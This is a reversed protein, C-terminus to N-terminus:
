ISWNTVSFYICFVSTKEGSSLQAREKSHDHEETSPLSLKAGPQLDNKSTCDTGRQGERASSICKWIEKSNPLINEGFFLYWCFQYLKQEWKKKKVNWSQELQMCNFCSFLDALAFGEAACTFFLLLFLLLPLLLCALTLSWLYSSVPCFFFPFFFSLSKTKAALQKHIRKNNYQRVESVKVEGSSGRILQIHSDDRILPLNWWRYFCLRRERDRWRGRERTGRMEKSVHSVWKM